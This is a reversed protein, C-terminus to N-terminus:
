RSGAYALKLFGLGQGAWIANNARRVALKDKNSYPGAFGHSPDVAAPSLGLDVFDLRTKESIIKTPRRIAAPDIDAALHRRNVRYQGTNLAPGDHVAGIHRELDVAEVRLRERQRWNNRGGREPFHSQSGSGDFDVSVVPYRCSVAIM